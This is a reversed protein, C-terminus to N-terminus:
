QVIQLKIKQKLTIADHFLYLHFEYEENEKIEFEILQENIIKDTLEQYIDQLYKLDYKNILNKIDNYLIKLKELNKINNEYYNRIYKILQSQINNTYELINNIIIYEGKILM